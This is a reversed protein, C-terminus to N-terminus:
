DESQSGSVAQRGNIWIARPCHVTPQKRVADVYDVLEPPRSRVDVADEFTLIRTVKWHLCGGLELHHDVELGRLCETDLHWRRHEGSGVLHNFLPAKQQPANTRKHCLASM